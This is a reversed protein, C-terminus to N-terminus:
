TEGPRLCSYTGLHDSSANFVIKIENLLMHRSERSGELEAQLVKVALKRGTPTHVATYVRSSNGRGIGRWDQLQELRLSSIEGHSVPSQTIGKPGVTFCDQSFSGTDSLFFSRNKLDTSVRLNDMTPKKKLGPM